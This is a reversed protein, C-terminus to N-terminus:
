SAIIVYFPINENTNGANVSVAITKDAQAERQQKDYEAQNRSYDFHQHIPPANDM